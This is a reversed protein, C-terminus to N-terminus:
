ALLSILLNLTYVIVLFVVAIKVIGGYSQVWDTYKKGKGSKGDAYQYIIYMIFYFVVPLVISLLNNM